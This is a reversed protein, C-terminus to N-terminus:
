RQVEPAGIAQLMIGMRWDHRGQERGQALQRVEDCEDGDLVAGGGEAVGPPQSDGHDSKCSCTAAAGGVVQLALTSYYIRCAHWSVWTQGADLRM